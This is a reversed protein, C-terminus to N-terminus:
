KKKYKIHDPFISANLLDAPDVELADAIDVLGEASLLHVGGQLFLRRVQQIEDRLVVAKGVSVLADGRRHEQVEQILVAREKRVTPLQDVVVGQHRQRDHDGFGLRLFLFHHDADDHVAHVAQSFSEGPFAGDSGPSFYFIIFILTSM